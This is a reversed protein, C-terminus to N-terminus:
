FSLGILGNRCHRMNKELVYTAQFHSEILLRTIYALCRTGCSESREVKPLTQNYPSVGTELTVYQNYNQGFPPLAEMSCTTYRDVQYQQGYLLLLLTLYAGVGWWVFQYGCSTPDTNTAYCDVPIEFLTRNSVYDARKDQFPTNSLTRAQGFPSLTKVM